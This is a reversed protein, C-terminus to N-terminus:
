AVASEIKWTFDGDYLGNVYKDSLAVKVYFSGYHYMGYSTNTSNQGYVIYGNFVTKSGVDNVSTGIGSDAITTISTYKNGYKGVTVGSDADGTDVYNLTCRFDAGGMNAFDWRLIFYPNSESLEVNDNTIGDTQYSPVGSSTATFPVQEQLYIYEADTSNKYAFSYWGGVVNSTYTVSINTKFSLTSVAFISVVSVIALLVSSTVICALVIARKKFFNAM